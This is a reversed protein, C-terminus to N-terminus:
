DKRHYIQISQICYRVQIAGFGLAAAGLMVINASAFTELREICSAQLFHSFFWCNGWATYWTGTLLSIM